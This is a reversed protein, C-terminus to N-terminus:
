RAKLNQMFTWTMVPGCFTSKIGVWYINSSGMLSVYFLHQGNSQMSLMFSAKLWHELM